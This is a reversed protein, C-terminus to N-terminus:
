DFDRLISHSESSKCPNCHTMSGLLSAAILFDIEVGIPAM